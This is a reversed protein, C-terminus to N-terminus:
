IWKNEGGGKAWFGVGVLSHNMTGGISWSLAVVVWWSPDYVHVLYAMVLQVMVTGMCFVASLPDPRFLQKIEPHKELIEGRRKAHPEKDASWSFDKSEEARWIMRNHADLAADGTVGTASTTTASKVASADVELSATSSTVTAGKRQTLQEDKCM